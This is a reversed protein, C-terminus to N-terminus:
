ISDDLIDDPEVDEDLLNPYYKPDTKEEEDDM